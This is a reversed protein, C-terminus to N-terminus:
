LLTFKLTPLLALTCPRNIHPYNKLGVYLVELKLKKACKFSSGTKGRQHAFIRHCIDSCLLNNSGISLYKKHGFSAFFLGFDHGPALFPLNPLLNM